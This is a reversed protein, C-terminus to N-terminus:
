REGAARRKILDDLFAQRQKVVERAQSVERSCTCMRQDAEESFQEAQRLGASAQEIDKETVVDLQTRM